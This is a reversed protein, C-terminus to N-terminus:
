PRAPENMSALVREIGACVCVLAGIATAGACFVAIRAGYRLVFFEEPVPGAVKILVLALAVVAAVLAVLAAYLEGQHRAGTLLYSTRRSLVPGLALTAVVLLALALLSIDVADFQQFASFTEIDAGDDNFRSRRGYWPMALAILLGAAAGITLLRGIVV